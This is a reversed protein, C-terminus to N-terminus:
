PHSLKVEILKIFAEIAKDQEENLIHNLGNFYEFNLATKATESRSSKTKECYFWGCGAAVPLLAVVIQDLM